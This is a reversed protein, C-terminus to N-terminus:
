SAGGKIGTASTMVVHRAPVVEIYEVASPARGGARAREARRRRRWELLYSRALYLVVPLLLACLAVSVYNIITTSNM